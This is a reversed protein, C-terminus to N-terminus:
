VSCICIYRCVKILYMSMYQNVYKGFLVLIKKNNYLGDQFRKILFRRMVSILLAKVKRFVANKGKYNKVMEYM